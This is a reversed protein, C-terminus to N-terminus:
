KKNCDRWTEAREFLRIGRLIVMGTKDNFNTITSKYSLSDKIFDLFKISVRRKSRVELKAEWNDAGESLSRRAPLTYNHCLLFSSVRLEDSVASSCVLNQKLLSKDERNGVTKAGSIAHM